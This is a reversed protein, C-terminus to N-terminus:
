FGTIRRRFITLEGPSGTSSHESAALVHQPRSVVRGVIAHGIRAADVANAAVLEPRSLGSVVNARVTVARGFASAANPGATAIFTAARM